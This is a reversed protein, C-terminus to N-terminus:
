EGGTPDLLRRLLNGELAGTARVTTKDRKVKTAGFLKAVPGLDEAEAMDEFVLKLSESVTRAADADKTHAVFHLRTDDGASFGLALTTSERAVTVLARDIARKPLAPAKLWGPTATDLCVALLDRNVEDWGPPAPSELKKELRGLLSKLEDEDTEFVLTRDNPVFFALHGKAEGVGFPVRFYARGAHKAAEAKPFWKKVCDTWDFPKATTVVGSSM